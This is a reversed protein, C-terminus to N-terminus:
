SIEAIPLRDAFDKYHHLFDFRNKGTEYFWLSSYPYDVPDNLLKWKKQVPNHHIYNLKQIITQEKFLLFWYPGPQRFNYKRSRWNVRYRNLDAPNQKLLHKEFQHATYKMLSAAPSERGNKQLMQWILHIHNHMIVFGYVRILQKRRLWSLSDVIIEYFDYQRILNYWKNITATYFYLAGYEMICFLLNPTKGFLM